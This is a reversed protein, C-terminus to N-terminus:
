LAVETCESTGAIIACMDCRITRKWVRDKARLVEVSVYVGAEEYKIGSDMRAEIEARRRKATM